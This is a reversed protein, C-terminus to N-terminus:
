TRALKEPAPSASFTWRISTMVCPEVPLPEPDDMPEDCGESGEVLPLLVPELPVPELPMPLPEVPLVPELPEVPLVPELPVPLPLVPELPLEPDPLPVIFL